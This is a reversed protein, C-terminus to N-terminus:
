SAIAIWQNLTSFTEILAITTIERGFPHTALM